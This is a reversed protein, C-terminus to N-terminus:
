LAREDLVTRFTLNLRAGTTQKTKVLAHEWTHQTAGAMILLDGEGLEFSLAEARRAKYPRLRFRRRAGLSVSCVVPLAGLEAENDRHWGMSDDGDRYYNMLCHNVGTPPALRWAALLANIDDRLQCVPQPWPRPSLMRHSYHYPRDGSWATLRPELHTKGFVRVQGQQWDVASVISEMSTQNAWGPLVYAVLGPRVWADYALDRSPHLRATM